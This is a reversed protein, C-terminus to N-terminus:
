EWSCERRWWSEIQRLRGQVEEVSDGTVLATAAAHGAYEVGRALERPHLHLKISAEPVPCVRQPAVFRGHGPPLLIWGRPKDPAEPQHTHSLGLGCQGRLSERSLQIGFAAEYTHAIPGGGTRCGVECLIPEGEPPLWAELHFSSVMPSPPFAAHVKHAFERLMSNRPDEPDLLVSSLAANALAAQANGNSYRGAWCHMVKGNRIIGDVHFLPADIYEEVMWYDPREPAAPLSGSFLFRDVDQRNHLIKVGASASGRRPKVVIPFGEEDAFDLLDFPQDVRRMRPVRLGNRAALEKMVAKDRYAMASQETQGALGLRERIRACRLVDDESSSVIFDVCYQRALREAVLEVSWSAYETVTVCDLFRSPVGDAERLAEPVTLLVIGNRLEPLWQDLPRDRLPKRSLALVRTRGSPM